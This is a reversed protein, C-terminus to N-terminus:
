LKPWQIILELRGNFEAAQQPSLLLPMAAMLERAGALFAENMLGPHRSVWTLAENPGGLSVFFLNALEYCWVMLAIKEHPQKRLPLQRFYAIFLNSVRDTLQRTQAALHVHGSLLALLPAMDEPNRLYLELVELVDDLVWRTGDLAPRIVSDLFTALVEKPLGYIATGAGVHLPEGEGRRVGWILPPSGSEDFVWVEGRERTDVVRWKM